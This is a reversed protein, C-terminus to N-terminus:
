EDTPETEAPPMKRKFAMTPTEEITTDLSMHPRDHHYWKVFRVIPDKEIRPPNIPCASGLPGAVDEFLSPKRQLEGHIRELKGNTQPHAVRALIHRIGLNELHREFGSVGKSKKESETAYFQSGRDSLIFRPKGHVAIAQDLVEIAHRTTAENFVGWGTVYRSADDEYSIFWRGDDLQKYDTHWMSNSHKREYRIWNRRKKKKKHEVAESSERLITHIVGKPINIGVSKLHSWIRNAGGRLKRRAVLVSSQENRTPLSRRPRGMPAPFVIMGKPTNKFRAWLKQVYRISINMTEAIIANKTGKRKEEVIYEVKSQDLKKMVRVRLDGIHRWRPSRRPQRGVSAKKSASKSDDGYFGSPIDLM